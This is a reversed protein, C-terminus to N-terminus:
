PTEAMEIESRQKVDPVVKEGVRLGTFNGFVVLEGANAGTVVEVDDATRLGLTVARKELQQRDNVVWLTSKDRGALAVVPVTLVAKKADVDLTVTAYMGSTLHLSTNDIDVEVLMTRTADDLKDALRTITSHIIQGTASVRVVVPDGPKVKPVLSEQVPFDLRLKATEAVHVVPMAQTSSSVGAQIMAGPHVYRKTIVGDFPVVINAYSVIVAAYQVDAQAKEYDMRANEIDEVAVLGPKKEAIDKLEEYNLRAKDNAAKARALSAEQESLDLTAIVQGAKVRDGIDVRITKLYGAVKGYLDAEEYPKLEATFEVPRALDERKVKIVAVTRATTRPTSRATTSPMDDRFHRLSFILGVITVIALIWYTRSIKKM